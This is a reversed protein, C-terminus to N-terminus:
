SCAIRGTKQFVDLPHSLPPHPGKHSLRCVKRDLSKILRRVGAITLGSGEAPATDAEMLRLARTREDEEPAAAAAAADPPVDSVDTDPRRAKPAPVVFV